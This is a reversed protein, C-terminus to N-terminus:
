IYSEDRKLTPIEPVEDENVPSLKNIPNELKEFASAMKAVDDEANIGLSTRLCDEIEKAKTEDGKSSTKAQEKIAGLMVNMDNLGDLLIMYRNTPFKKYTMTRFGKKPELKGTNGDNYIFDSGATVGIPVMLGESKGLRINGNGSHSSGASIEIDISECSGVPILIRAGVHMAKNEPIRKITTKKKYDVKTAPRYIKVSFGKIESKLSFVAKAQDCLDQLFMPLSSEGDWVYEGDDGIYAGPKGKNTTVVTGLFESVEEYSVEVHRRTGFGSTDIKGEKIVKVRAPM